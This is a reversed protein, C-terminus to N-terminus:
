ADEPGIGPAPKVRIKIEHSDTTEGRVLRDAKILNVHCDVLRKMDEIDKVSLTPNLKLKGEGNKVLATALSLRILNLSQNIEQLHQATSRVVAQDTRRELAEGNVRDREAVRRQWELSRSWQEATRKVVGFQAAVAELTRGEGLGYYYDFAERHQLTETV